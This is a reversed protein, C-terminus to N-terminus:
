SPSSLAIEAFDPLWPAQPYTTAMFFPNKLNAQRNYRLPTLDASLLVGGAEQLICQAAATDWEMTPGFGPYIDAQGDAVLCSKIASGVVKIEHEPLRARLAQLRKNGLWRGCVLVPAQSTLNANTHIAEPTGGVRCKFAGEGQVAFYTIQWAPIHIVGLVPQHAHILAISVCYHETGAVFEKTGDLPDVLWYDQWHERQAFPIDEEEESLLPYNPTVDALAAKILDHSAIDASTVPTGDSKKEVTFGQEVAALIANGAQESLPIVSQLLSPIITM